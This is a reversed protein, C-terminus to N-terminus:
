PGQMAVCNYETEVRERLEAYCLPKRQRGPKYAPDIEHRFYPGQSFCLAHEKSSFREFIRALMAQLNAWCEEANSYLVHNQDDWRTEKELAATAKFLFQDGDILLISSV